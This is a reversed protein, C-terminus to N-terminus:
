AKSSFDEMAAFSKGDESQTSFKRTFNIIIANANIASQLKRAESDARAM